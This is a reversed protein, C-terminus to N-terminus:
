PLSPLPTPVPLSPTPIAPASVTPLAPASVVPSASPSAAAEPSRTGAAAPSTAAPQPSSVSQAQQTAARAWDVPNASHTIVAEATAGAAMVAVVAGVAIKAGLAAGAGGLIRRGAHGAEPEQFVPISGVAYPDLYSHLDKELREEFQPTQGPM